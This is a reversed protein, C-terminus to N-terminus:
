VLRGRDMLKVGRKMLVDGLTKDSKGDTENLARGIVHCWNERPDANRGGFHLGAEAGERGIVFVASGSNGGLTTGDHGLSWHRPSNPLEDAPTTVLGPALRKFGFTSQFLLELLSPSDPGFPGPNGPYGCIFVATDPQGWDPAMEIALPEPSVGSAPKLELLAVDLKRHDIGGEIRKSGAFIVGKVNKRGISDRSRFEHGFDIAIDPKLKWSGNEDESAIVQLVHRNTMVLDDGILIGTGQFGQGGSPDDIRGVSSMAQHLKAASDSLTRGWEGLPSTATDPNGDRVMFSPRSGDTRVIVELSALIRGDALQEEDEQGVARLGQRGEDAIKDAIEHLEPKDGLFDKVIRHLESRTSNVREEIGAESFDPAASEEAGVEFTTSEFGGAAAKGALLRKYHRALKAESM